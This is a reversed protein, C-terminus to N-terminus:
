QIQSVSGKKTSRHSPSIRKREGWYGMPSTREDFFQVAARRTKGPGSVPNSKGWKKGEPTSGKKETLGKFVREGGKGCFLM